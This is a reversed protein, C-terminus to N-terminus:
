KPGAKPGVIVSGPEDWRHRRAVVLGRRQEESLADLGALNDESVKTGRLRAGRCYTGGTLATILDAADLLADKFVTGRVSAASFDGERVDAGTLNTSQLCARYFRAGRFNLGRLDAGRLDTKSLDLFRGGDNNANRRGIVSLAAQVDPRPPPAPENASYRADHCDSAPANALVFAVLVELVTWHDRVSDRAIRELAYIGGLRLPLQDSSLHEVARSFRETVQGDLAAEAMREAARVRRFTLWLGWLLAAGGVFQVLTRRAENEATFENQLGGRVQAKPALWVIGVLVVFGLVALVARARRFPSPMM